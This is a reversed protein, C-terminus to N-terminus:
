MDGLSAPLNANAYRFVSVPMVEFGPAVGTLAHADLLADLAAPSQALAQRYALLTPPEISREVVVIRRPAPAPSTRHFPPQPVDRSGFALWAGGAVVAGLIAAARWIRVRQQAARREAALAAAMPDFHVAAPQLSRLARELEREDRNLESQDSM